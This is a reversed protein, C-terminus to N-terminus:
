SMWTSGNSPSVIGAIELICPVPAYGFLELLSVVLYYCRLSAVVYLVLPKAAAFHDCM